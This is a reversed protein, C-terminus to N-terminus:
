DQNVPKSGDQAKFFVRRGPDQSAQMANAIAKAIADCDVVIDAATEPEPMPDPPIRMETTPLDDDQVNVSSEGASAASAAASRKTSRKTETSTVGEEVLAQIRFTEIWNQLAILDRVVTRSPSHAISYSQYEKKAALPLLGLVEDFKSRSRLDGAHPTNQVASIYTGLVSMFELWSDRSEDKWQAFDTLARYCDSSLREDGGFLKEMALIAQCYTWATGDLQNMLYSFRTLKWAQRLCDSKISVSTDVQHVGPVFEKKWERFKFPTVEDTLQLRDIVRKVLDKMTTTRVMSDWNRPLNSFMELEPM